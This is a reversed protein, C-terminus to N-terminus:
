VQTDQVLDQLECVMVSVVAPSTRGPLGSPHFAGPWAAGDLSDMDRAECSAEADSLTESAGGNAAPSYPPSPSESSEDDTQPARPRTRTRAPARNPALARAPPRPAGPPLTTWSPLKLSFKRVAPAATIAIAPLTTHGGDKAAGPTDGPSTSAGTSTGSPATAARRCSAVCRELAQGLCMALDYDREHHLYRGVLIALLVFYLVLVVLVYIIANQKSERHMQVIREIQAKSLVETRNTQWPVWPLSAM